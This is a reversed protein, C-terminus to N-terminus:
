QVKEVYMGKICVCTAFMNDESWVINYYKVKTPFKIYRVSSRVHEIKFGNDMIVWQVISRM